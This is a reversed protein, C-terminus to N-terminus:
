AYPSDLETFEDSQYDRWNVGRDCLQDYNRGHQTFELIHLKGDRESFFLRENVHGQPMVVADSGKIREANSARIEPVRLREVIRLFMARTSSDFNNWDRRARVSLWVPVTEGEALRGRFAELYAEGLPSLYTFGDDADELLALIQEPLSALRQTVEASPRPQADLWDFFESHWAFLSYDWSIPTAPLTIVDQFNEHIYFIPVKFLLGVINGYAIQVKFGGTNNIGVTVGKRQAERIHQALLRVFNRLGHNVFGAQQNTMGPIREVDTAYGLGAFYDGLLQACRRGDSTDSHLFVLQDGPEILRSLTNAEASAKQPSAQLFGQMATTSDFDVAPEAKLANIKLSTGVTNIILRTM